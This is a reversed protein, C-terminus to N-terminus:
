QNSFWAILAIVIIAIALLTGGSSDEPHSKHMVYEKTGSWTTDGSNHYKDLSRQYGPDNAKWNNLEKQSM